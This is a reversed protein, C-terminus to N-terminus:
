DMEHKHSPPLKDRCELIAREVVYQLDRLDEHSFGPGYEMTM